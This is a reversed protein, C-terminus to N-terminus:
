YTFHMYLNKVMHITGLYKHFLGPKHFIEHAVAFQVSELNSFIFIFAVTRIISFFNIELEAFMIMVKFFLLWDSIITIYLVLRFYFDRKQLNKTEEQNPNRVDFSLFEDLLPLGTYVIFIFM